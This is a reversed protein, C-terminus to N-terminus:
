LRLSGAAKMRIRRSDGPLYALPTEESEIIEITEPDAGAEVARLRVLNFVEDLAQQRSMTACNFIQDITASIQAICVGVANAVDFHPPRVIKSVGQLNEPFLISGGGVTVVIPSEESLKIRDISEELLRAITSLGGVVVACPLDRVLEPNGVAARGAAVALDTSTLQDGGFVLAKESLQYGVTAPGVKVESGATDVLSGGGLGISILDPMRFNTRVGGIEVAMASERPFGRTLVGLDSTTGGIDVVIADKLGSLYAAGRMSNAPGSAITLVPLRLADDLSLLTGDNQGLFLMASIGLERVADKFGTVAVQAAQVLTANLAAANERELLSLSGLESSITISVREDELEERVIERARLEHAPNVPSFVGTISVAGVRGRMARVAGRLNEEDLPAIEEGNLEHGGGLMHCAELVMTRLDAPWTTLPPIALTAPAGLRIVGIRVLGRRTTIANTCHTTSLMACRIAHLPLQSEDLVARLTNRVGGFVDATTRSKAKAIVRNSGDLIVSDTNTGGVDVGVRYVEHM